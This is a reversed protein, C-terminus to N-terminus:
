QQSGSLRWDGGGRDRVGRGVRKAQRREEVAREGEDSLRVPHRDKMQNM